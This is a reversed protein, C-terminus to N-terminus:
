GLGTISIYLSNLIFIGESEEVRQNKELTFSIFSPLFSISFLLRLCAFLSLYM